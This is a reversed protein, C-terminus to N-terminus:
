CLPRFFLCNKPLPPPLPPPRLLVFFPSRLTKESPLQLPLPITLFRTIRPEYSLSSHFPRWFNFSSPLLLFDTFCSNIRESPKYSKMFPFSLGLFPFSLLPPLLTTFLTPPLNPSFEILLLAVKPSFSADLCGPPLLPVPYAPCIRLFVEEEPSPSPPM